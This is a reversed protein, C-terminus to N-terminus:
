DTKTVQVNEEETPFLSDEQSPAVTHCQRCRPEYSEAAGVVLRDGGCVTRQTRGAPQGCVVCIALTKQVYEALALLTPVPEWPVGFSDQDLGACIVRIGREALSQVIPVLEMGLFQVEDIGVVETGPTVHDEIESAKDITVCPITLQSHSAIAAAEYRDDIRPKFAIVRRRAIKARRLRRILEESKGSFMPGCVIEIWGTGPGAPLPRFM